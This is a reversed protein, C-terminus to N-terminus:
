ITYKSYRYRNVFGKLLDTRIVIVCQGDWTSKFIETEVFFSIVFTKEIQDPFKISLPFVNGANANPCQRDPFTTYKRSSIGGSVMQASTGPLLLRPM